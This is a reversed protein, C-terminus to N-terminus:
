LIKKTKIGIKSGIKKRKKGNEEWTEKRRLGKKNNKM